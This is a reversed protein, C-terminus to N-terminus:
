VRILEKSTSLSFLELTVHADPYKTVRYDMLRWRFRWPLAELAEIFAQVQLYSGELEIKLGHQYLAHMEADSAIAEDTQEAASQMLLTPKISALRTLRLQGIKQLVGHLVPVMQEPPILSATVQELQKREETLSSQLLHIDRTLQDDPRQALKQRLKAISLTFEQIHQQTSHIQRQTDARKAVNPELVLLNALLAIVVVGAGTIIMRERQTLASFRDVLLHWQKM